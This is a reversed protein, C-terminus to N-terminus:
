NIDCSGVFSSVYRRRSNQRFKIRSVFNLELMRCYSFSVASALARSSSSSSAIQNKKELRGRGLKVVSPRGLKKLAIVSKNIELFKASLFSSKLM